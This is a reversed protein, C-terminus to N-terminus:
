KVRKPKDPTHLRTRRAQRNDDTDMRTRVTIVGSRAAALHLVDARFELSEFVAAPQAAGRGALEGDRGSGLRTRPHQRGPHGRRACLRTHICGTLGGLAGRKDVLARQRQRALREGEDSVQEAAVELLDAGPPLSGGPLIARM